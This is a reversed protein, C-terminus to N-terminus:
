RKMHHRSKRSGFCQQMVEVPMSLRKKQGGMNDHDHSQSKFGNSIASLVQDINKM